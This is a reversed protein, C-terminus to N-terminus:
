DTSPTTKGLQVVELITGLNCLCVTSGKAVEVELDRGTFHMLEFASNILGAPQRIVVVLPESRKDLVLPGWTTPIVLERVPANLGLAITTEGDLSSVVLLATGEKAEIEIEAIPRDPM